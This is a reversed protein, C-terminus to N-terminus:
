RNRLIQMEGFIHAFITVFTKSNQLVQKILEKLFMLEVM